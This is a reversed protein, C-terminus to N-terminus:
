VTLSARGRARPECLYWGRSQSFCKELTNEYRHFTCKFYGHRHLKFNKLHSEKSLKERYLQLTTNSSVTLSNSDRVSGNYENLLCFRLLKTPFCFCFEPIAFSIKDVVFCVFRSKDLRSHSEINCSNFFFFFFLFM